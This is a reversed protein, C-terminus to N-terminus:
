YPSAQCSSVRLLFLLHGLQECEKGGSFVADGHLIGVFIADTADVVEHVADPELCREVIRKALLIRGRGVLRRRIWCGLRRDGCRSCGAGAAARVVSM